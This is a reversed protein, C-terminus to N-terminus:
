EFPQLTCILCFFCNAVELDLGEALESARVGLGQDLTTKNQSRLVHTVHPHPGVTEVFKM